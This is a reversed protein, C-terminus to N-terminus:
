HRGILITAALALFLELPDLRQGVMTVPTGLARLTLAALDLLHEGREERFRSAFCLLKV